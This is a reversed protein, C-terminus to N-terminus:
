TGRDSDQAKHQSKAGCPYSRGIKVQTNKEKNNKVHELGTRKGKHNLPKSLHSLGKSEARRKPLTEYCGKIQVSTDEAVTSLM